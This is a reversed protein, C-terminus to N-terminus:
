SLYIYEGTRHQSDKEQKHDANMLIAFQTHDWVFKCLLKNALNSM